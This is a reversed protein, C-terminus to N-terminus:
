KNMLDFILKTLLQNNLVHGWSWNQPWLPTFSWILFTNVTAFFFGNSRFTTLSRYFLLVTAFPRILRVFSYISERIIPWYMYQKLMGTRDTFMECKRSRRQFWKTLKILVQCLFEYHLKGISEKSIFMFILLLEKKKM